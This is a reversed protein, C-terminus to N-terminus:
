AVIASCCLFPTKQTTQASINLCSFNPSSTVRVLSHNSGVPRFRGLNEKESCFYACSFFILAPKLRDSRVMGKNSRRLNMGHQVFPIDGKHIMYCVLTIKSLLIVHLNCTYIISALAKPVTTLAIGKEPTLLQLALTL